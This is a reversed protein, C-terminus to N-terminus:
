QKPELESGVVVLVDGNFTYRTLSPIIRGFGLRARIDEAAIRSDDDRYVILTETYMMSNANGVEGREYGAAVLMNSVSTAVGPTGYGNRVDVKFESTTIIRSASGGLLDAVTDGPKPKYSDPTTGQRRLGFEDPDPFVGEDISALLARTAALDPIEYSIENRYESNCPVSYTYFNSEQIGRMNNAIGAIETINMNTSTMQCILTITSIITLPDSALIQKAMAQLFTRQNAQRQYDGIPYWRSRVFLLAYDGQLLQHEGAYIAPYYSEYAPANWDYDNYVDIPVDVYVGGLADVVSNFGSLDIQAYYTIGIGTFDLITRLLLEPGTSSSSLTGYVYAANIKDYGYGPIMVYADRPISVLAVTKHAPDIRALIITDTRSIGWEEVDTGVLLTWFPDEPKSRETFFPALADIAPDSHITDDLGTLFMYVAAAGTALLVFVTICATILVNRKRARKRRQKIYGTPDSYRSYKEM